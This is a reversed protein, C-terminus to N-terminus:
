WLYIINMLLFLNSHKNDKIWLYNRSNIFNIQSKLFVNNLIKYNGEFGYLYDNWLTSRIGLSYFNGSYNIPGQSIHEFRFGFNNIGKHIKFSINQANNGNGVGAGIIQENNTYGELILGHIYFTGAQSILYNPLEAIRTAEFNLSIYKKNSFFFYKNFGFTYATTRQIRLMLDRFNVVGDNFATEFYIQAHDNPFLFKSFFLLKQDRPFNDDTYSSRFIGNFYPLYDNVFDIRDYSNAPIYNQFVRIFGFNSNKLIRPSVSFLFLNYRRQDPLPVNSNWYFSGQPHISPYESIYKMELENITNLKRTLNGSIFNFEINGIPTKLPRNTKFSLHRFGQANNSLILSNSVGPGTWLNQSAASITVPGLNINFSSQGPIFNSISNTVVGWGNGTEYNDSATKYFEPRLQLSIFKWRMAIGGSVLFQYGKSYNLPGDNYGYPHDSTYKQLINFPTLRVEFSKKKTLYGGYKISTDILKLLSDYTLQTNLYYPRNTFSNDSPIKGLLQMDRLNEEFDNFGVPVPYTTTKIVRSKIEDLRFISSTTSITDIYKLKNKKFPNKLHSFPNSFHFFQKKSSDSFAYSNSAVLGFFLLLYLAKKFLHDALKQRCNKV